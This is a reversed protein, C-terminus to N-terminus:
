CCNIVSRGIIEVQIEYYSRLKFRMGPKRMGAKRRINTPCMTPRSEHGIKQWELLGAVVTKMSGISKM